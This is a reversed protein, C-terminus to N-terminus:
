ARRQRLRYLMACVRDALEEVPTAQEATIIELARGVDIVAQVESASGLAIALLHARDRGTRRMGEALNLPVSPLARKLQSELSSDFRRFSPLLKAATAVLALAAQYADLRRVSRPDQRHQAM